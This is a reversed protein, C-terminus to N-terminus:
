VADWVADWALTTRRQTATPAHFPTPPSSIVINTHTRAPQRAGQARGSTEWKGQKCGDRAQLRRLLGPHLGVLHEKATNTVKMNRTPSAHQHLSTRQTTFSTKGGQAGGSAQCHPRLARATTRCLAAYQSDPSSAQAHTESLMPLARAAAIWFSARLELDTRTTIPAPPLRSSAGIVSQSVRRPARPGRSRQM